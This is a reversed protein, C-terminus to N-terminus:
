SGGIMERVGNGYRQTSAEKGVEWDELKAGTVRCVSALMDKQNISFAKTYVDKNKFGELCTLAQDGESKISLSLIAAVARGVQSWTSSSIKTEGEDFLTATHSILDIGFAPAM